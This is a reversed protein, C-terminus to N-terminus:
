IRIRNIRIDNEKNSEVKGLDLEKSSINELLFFYMVDNCNGTFYGGEAHGSNISLNSCRKRLIALSDSIGINIDTKLSPAKLEIYYLENKDFRLALNHGKYAVLYEIFNEEGYVTKEEVKTVLENLVQEKNLGIVIDGFGNKNLEIAEVQCSITNLIILILVLLRNM